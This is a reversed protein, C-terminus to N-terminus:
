GCKEAFTLREPAKGDIVKPNEPPATNGPIALKPANPNLAYWMGRKGNPDILIRIQPFRELVQRLGRPDHGVLRALARNEVTHGEAMAIIGLCEKVLGFRWSRIALSKRAPAPYLMRNTELSTM